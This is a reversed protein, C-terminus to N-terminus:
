PEGPDPSVAGEDIRHVLVHTDDQHDQVVAGRGHGAALGRRGGAFASCPFGQDFHIHFGQDLAAAIM